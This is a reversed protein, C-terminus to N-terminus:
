LISSLAVTDDLSFFFRIQFQSIQQSVESVKENNKGNELSVDRSLCCGDEAM